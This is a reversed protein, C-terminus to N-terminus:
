ISCCGDTYVLQTTCNPCKESAKTENNIYKKLTRAIAKNFNILGGNKQLQEVIFHLPTGHRLNLSIQRSLAEAEDVSHGNTIDYENGNEAVLIYKGTKVKKILGTKVSRPIFNEGANNYNEGTFVEYPKGDFEGIIVYYQKKNVTPIHVEANIESPRKPSHRESVTTDDKKTVLIGDRSGDRYVTVGIIGQRWAERYVEGVKEQSVDRPLNITKSVSLSTNRAIGGLMNVHDMPDIDGSTVFIAKEEDTLITSKQCSGNNDVVEKLVDNKKDSYHKDLYDEFVSEVMYVEEFENNTHEIRRVFALAFMPEIGSSTNAIYSITGTPAISTNCHNRIGYKKIDPLLDKFEEKEFFRENAKIYVDYDFAEYAGKEKALKVSEKMSELTLLEALWEGFIVGKESNYPIGMKALAHAFGMVGLGIPRTKLTIDKIKDLPFTNYDILTDLYRTTKHVLKIFGNIDFIGNEDVFKAVDISGLNCSNYPINTFEACNSINVGNCWFTHSNNDVTIDFVEETSVYEREMIEYRDKGKCKNKRETIISYARDNKYIQIFGILDM